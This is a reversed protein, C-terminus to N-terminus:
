FYTRENNSRKSPSPIYVLADMPKFCATNSSSGYLPPKNIKFSPTEPTASVGM